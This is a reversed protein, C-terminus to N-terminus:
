YEVVVLGQGGDGGYTLSSLGANCCAAGGGGGYGGNGGVAGLGNTTDLHVAAGGGGCILASSATLGSLNGVRALVGATGAGRSPSNTPVWVDTSFEVGQGTGLLPLLLHWMPIYPVAASDEGAFVSFALNRVGGAFTTYGGASPTIASGGTGGGGSALYQSPFGPDGDIDGGHCGGVGGGGTSISQVETGSINVADGGRGGAGYYHGSAGGGLAHASTALTATADITGSRGGPFNVDGGFGEGPAGVVGPAGSHPGVTAVAGGTASIVAGFSSTGGATAARILTSGIHRQGLGGAGPTIVFSDGPSVDLTKMAFGGGSGGFNPWAALGGSHSSSLGGSGSGLVSVRLLRIGSPVFFDDGVLYARVVGNGFPMLGSIASQTISRAM